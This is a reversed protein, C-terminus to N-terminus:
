VMLINVYHKHSQSYVLQTVLHQCDQWILVCVAALCNIYQSLCEEWECVYRKGIEEKIKTKGGTLLLDPISNMHLFVSNQITIHQGHKCACVCTHQYMVM